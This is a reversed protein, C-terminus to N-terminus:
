SNTKVLQVGYVNAYTQIIDVLDKSSKGRSFEGDLVAMEVEESLHGYDVEDILDYELEFDKEQSILRMKTYTLEVREIVQWAWEEIFYDDYSFTKESIYISPQGNLIVQTIYYLFLLSLVITNFSMLSSYRIVYVLGLLGLIIGHWILSSQFESKKILRITDVDEKIKYIAVKKLVFFASVSLLYLELITMYTSFIAKQEGTNDMLLAAAGVILLIWVTFNFLRYM